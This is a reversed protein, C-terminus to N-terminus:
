DRRSGVIPDGMIRSLLERELFFFFFFGAAVASKVGGRM